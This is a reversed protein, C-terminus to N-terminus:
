FEFSSERAPRGTCAADADKLTHRRPGLDNRSQLRPSHERSTGRPGHPRRRVGRIRHASVIESRCEGSVIRDLCTRGAEQCDSLFCLDFRFRAWVDKQDHLRSRPGCGLPVKRAQTAGAAAAFGVDQIGGPMSSRTRLTSFPTSHGRGCTTLPTPQRIFSNTSFRCFNSAVPCTSCKGTFAVPERPFGSTRM